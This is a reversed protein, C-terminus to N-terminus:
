AARISAATSTSRDWPVEFKRLGSELNLRQPFLMWVRAPRDESVAFYLATLAGETWDLLRTPLGAHRALYLWLDTADRSIGANLQPLAAMNRFHLLLDYEGYHPPRRYLKPLLPHEVVPEGRFWPQIGRAESPKNQQWLDIQAFVANLYQVVNTIM